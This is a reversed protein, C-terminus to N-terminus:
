NLEEGRIRMRHENADSMEAPFRFSPQAGGGGLCSCLPSLQEGAEVTAYSGGRILSSGLVTMLWEFSLESM